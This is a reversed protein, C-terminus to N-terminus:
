RNASAPPPAGRRARSTFGLGRATRRWEADLDAATVAVKGARTITGM